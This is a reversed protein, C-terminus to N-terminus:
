LIEGECYQAWKNGANCEASLGLEEAQRWFRLSEVENKHLKSSQFSKPHLLLAKFGTLVADEHSTDNVLEQAAVWDIRRRNMGFLLAAVEDFRLHASM